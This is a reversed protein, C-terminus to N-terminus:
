GKKAKKKRKNIGKKRLNSYYKSIDGGEALIKAHRKEVSKRGLAQAATRISM